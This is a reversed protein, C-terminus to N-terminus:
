AAAKTARLPRELSARDWGGLEAAATYTSKAFDLLMQDPQQARRVEEYMLIYGRTPLNYFAQTPLIKSHHFAQPSLHRMRMIPPALSTGAGRGFVM